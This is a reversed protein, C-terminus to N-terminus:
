ERYHYTGHRKATLDIPEIALFARVQVSRRNSALVHNMANSAVDRESQTDGARECVAESGSVLSTAMPEGDRGETLLSGRSAVRDVPSNERGEVLFFILSDKRNKQGM